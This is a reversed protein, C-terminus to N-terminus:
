KAILFFFFISVRDGESYSITESPLQFERSRLVHAKSMVALKERVHIVDSDAVSLQQGGWLHASAFNLICFLVIWFMKRKREFHNHHHHHHNFM